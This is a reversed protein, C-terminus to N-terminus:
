RGIELGPMSLRELVGLLARMSHTRQQRHRKWARLRRQDDVVRMRFRRKSQQLAPVANSVHSETM